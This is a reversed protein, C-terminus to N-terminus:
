AQDDSPLPAVSRPGHMTSLSSVVTATGPQALATTPRKPSNIM